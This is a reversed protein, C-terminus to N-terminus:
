INIHIQVIIIILHIFMIAILVILHSKGLRFWISFLHTFQAFDICVLKRFKGCQLFTNVILDCCVFLRVHVISRLSALYSVFNMSDVYQIFIYIKLEVYRQIVHSNLLFYVLCFCFVNSTARSRFTRQNSICRFLYDNSAKM